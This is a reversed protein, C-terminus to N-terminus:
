YELFSRCIGDTPVINESPGNEMFSAFNGLPHQGNCVSAVPYDAILPNNRYSRAAAPQQAFPFARYSFASAPPVYHVSPPAVDFYPTDLATGGTACATIMAYQGPQAVPIGHPDFSSASHGGNNGFRCDRAHRRSAAEPFLQGSSLLPAVPQPWEEGVAVAASSQSTSNFMDEPLQSYREFDQFFQSCVADDFSPPWKEFIDAVVEHPLNLDSAFSSLDVKSQGEGTAAASGLSPNAICAASSSQENCMGIPRSVNAWCDNRFKVDVNVSLNRSVGVGMTSPSGFDTGIDKRRVASVNSPSPKSKGGNAEVKRAKMEARQQSVLQLEQLRKGRLFPNMVQAQLRSMYEAEKRASITELMAMEKRFHAVREEPIYTSGSYQTLYEVTPVGRNPYILREM